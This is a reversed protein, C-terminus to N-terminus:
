SKLEGPSKRSRNIEMLSAPLTPPDDTPKWSEPFAAKWAEFVQSWTDDISSHNEIVVDARALKQAQPPQAQIRQLADVKDLGRQNVLREVQLNEPAATVWLTDCQNVLGSEILKIAEVVVVDASASRVEEDVLKAVEPHVISELKALASPDSFVIKGLSKRDIQGNAELIFEAFEAKVAQYGAGGVDTVQRSLADADIGYAGLSELMKRVLSKGTAINGTLGIVYKGSWAGMSIKNDM